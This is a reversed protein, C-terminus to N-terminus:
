GDLLDTQTPRRAAPAVPTSPRPLRAPVVIGRTRDTLRVRTCWAGPEPCFHARLDQLEICADAAVGADLDHPFALPRCEVVPLRHRIRSHDLAAPPRWGWDDIPPPNIATSVTQVDQHDDESSIWWEALELVDGPYWPRPADAAPVRPSTEQGFLKRQAAREAPSPPLLTLIAWTTRADGVARRLAHSQWDVLNM